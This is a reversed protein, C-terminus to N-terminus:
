ITRLKKKKGDCLRSREGEKGERFPTGRKTEKRLGQPKEGVGRKGKETTAASEKDRGWTEGVGERREEETHIPSTGMGTSQRATTHKDVIPCTTGQGKNQPKKRKTRGVGGKGM